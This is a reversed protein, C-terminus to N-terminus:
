KVWHRDRIKKLEGEEVNKKKEKGKQGLNELEQEGMEALKKARSILYGESNLEPKDLVEELLAHLIHGVKPGPGLKTEHLVQEGKIKLMAVSTPSRMAEEIMSHYKRLRYPNEKPRGMGIRDCARIKMLDWVNEPGVSRILRRVASLTIKETDTFFMHNRVLKEVVESIKKGFRLRQMIQRTIKAGVVDHGYFTWDDKEKSWQRTPPKGIDHFLAGLRVHLPFDKDAAHQAVRLTHEWVDYKHDGNQKMDIGAELEPAVHLLLGLKSMLKIGVMPQSSNVIRIFEERIRESSIAKLQDATERIARETQAEITFGLETALRVARLLRLPDEALRKDAQGVARVVRDAIDKQGAYLDILKDTAPDLALANITFDRRGLDDELKTSFTVTDPHRQDSYKAELRFPTIEVNKLTPGAADPDHVTVTGFSNEYFTKPFLAVIQEPKANTTIDWDKPKLNLFLDRVCGGVLYAQFGAQQLTTIIQGISEPIAQLKPVM